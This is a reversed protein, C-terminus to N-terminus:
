RGAQILVFVQSGVTIQAARADPDSNADITFTLTGSGVAGAPAAVHVWPFVATNLSARWSCSATVAVQVQGGAAAITRPSTDISSSCLDGITYLGRGYTGVVIVGLRTNQVLDLIPVNPLNDSFLTWSGGDNTSRYVGVDTGVLLTGDSSDVLLTNCPTDPLGDTLPIWARGADSTKWVHPAGFGSLTVYATRGTGTVAIHTVARRPLGQTVDTWSGGSDNTTWVRGDSTGAWMTSGNLPAFSLSRLTGSTLEQSVARWQEGQDDTLYVRFTGFALRSPTTADLALPPIFQARDNLDIGTQKLVFTGSDGGTDSRSIGSGEGIRWQHEAYVTSPKTPDIATFGGDGFYVSQWGGQAYRLVALDQAGAFVVSPDTPHLSIGPYFQRLSLNTNLSEWSTGNDRSRQLGGDNAVLMRGGSDFVVAHNDGFVYGKYTCPDDGLRVDVWSNGEDTSRYLFREGFFLEGPVSPNVAMLLSFWCASCNLQLPTPAARCVPTTASRGLSTWTRGSDLSRFLGALAADTRDSIAAYIAHSQSSIALKAYNFSSPLGNTLPTWTTGGDTSAFLGGGSASGPETSAYLRGPNQPDMWIDGGAGVALRELTRGSDFSRFVGTTAGVYITTRETSGATTPDILLRWVAGGALESAGINTWTLGDDSSRLLGCGVSVRPEGTGAYVIRPNVPDIAIAGTALSCQYDTLPSWSAGDNTTKWVGGSSSAAYIISANTPHVAVDRVRGTLQRPAVGDPSPGFAKWPAVPVSKTVLQQREAAATRELWARRPADPPIEGAPFARENTFWEVRRRQTDGEDRVGADPRPLTQDPSQAALRARAGAEVLLLFALTWAARHWRQSTGVTV